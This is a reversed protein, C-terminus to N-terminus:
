DYRRQNDKIKEEDPVLRNTDIKSIDNFEMDVNFDKKILADLAELNGRLQRTFQNIKIEPPEPYIKDFKGRPGPVLQPAEPEKLYQSFLIKATNEYNKIMSEFIFKDRTLLYLRAQKTICNDDEDYIKNKKEQINIFDDYKPTITPQYPSQLSYTAAINIQNIYFWIAGAGFLIVFLFLGLVMLIIPWMQRKERLPKIVYDYILSASSALLLSISGWFIISWYWPSVNPYAHSFMVTLAGALGIIVAATRVLPM